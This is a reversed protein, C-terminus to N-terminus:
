KKIETVFISTSNNLYRNIYINIYKIPKFLGCLLYLLTLMYTDIYYGSYNYM